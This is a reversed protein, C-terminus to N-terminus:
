SEADYLTGLEEATEDESKPREEEPDGNHETIWSNRGRRALRRQPKTKPPVARNEKM